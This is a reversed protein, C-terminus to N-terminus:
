KPKKAMGINISPFAETPIRIVNVVCGQRAHPTIMWTEEDVALAFYIAHCVRSAETASVWQLFLDVDSERCRCDDRHVRRGSGDGM